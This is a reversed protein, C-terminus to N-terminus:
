QWLLMAAGDAGGSSGGGGGSGGESFVTPCADEFASDWLDILDGRSIPEVGASANGDIAQRWCSQYCASPPAPPSAPSADPAASVGGGPECQAFCRPYNREAAADLLSYMCSAGIAKQATGPSRRWGCSGRGPIQGEACAGPTPLSYWFGGLREAWGGFEPYAANIFAQSIKGAQARPSCPRPSTLPARERALTPM